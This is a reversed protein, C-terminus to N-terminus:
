HLGGGKGYATRCRCRIIAEVTLGSTQVQFQTGDELNNSWCRTCYVAERYGRAQLFKKYQLLLRLDDDSLPEHPTETPEGDAGYLTVKDPAIPM